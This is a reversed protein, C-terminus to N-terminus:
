LPPAIPRDMSVSGSLKPPLRVLKDLTLGLTFSGNSMFSMMILLLCIMAAFFEPASQMRRICVTRELFPMFGASRM